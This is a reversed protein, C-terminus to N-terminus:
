SEASLLNKEFIEELKALFEHNRTIHFMMMTQHGKSTQAIFPESWALLFAEQSGKLLMFGICNRESLWRVTINTSNKIADLRPQVCDVWIDKVSKDLLFTISRVHPNEIGAKVIINFGEETRIRGLPINFFWIEGSSEEVRERIIHLEHPGLLEIGTCVIAKQLDSFDKKIETETHMLAGIIYALYIIILALIYETPIVHGFVALTLPMLLALIVGFIIIAKKEAEFFNMEVVYEAYM